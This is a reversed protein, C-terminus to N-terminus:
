RKRKKPPDKPVVGTITVWLDATAEEFDPLAARATRTLRPQDKVRGVLRFAGGTGPKDAATLTVTVTNPDAKGAPPKVELKVGDPLGEATVEVPGAFGNRRAIKVPVDLSKGPPVAFRDAAVSLDYDPESTLVRLLFTFRDGGGGYMDSVAVTYPGDAPPTFSLVTDAHLKAPEARAIQKRGADLVRVVPNVLLGLSRSEVQISLSVGKRGAVVCEAAGGPTEIKGTVSFPAPAGGLAPAALVPHPELRIRVPNAAGPALLQATDDGAAPTPVPRKRASDSINWGVVEVPGPAARATALPLAHDAFGGTTLTLRYIYTEAGSFHISADPTAPFAFV